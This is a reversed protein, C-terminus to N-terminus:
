GWAYNYIHKMTHKSTEQELFLLLWFVNETSATFKRKEKRHAHAMYPSSM